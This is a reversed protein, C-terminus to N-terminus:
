SSLHCFVFVFFLSGHNLLSFAQWLSPFRSSESEGPLSKGGTSRLVVNELTKADIHSKVVTQPYKIHTNNHGCDFTYLKNPPLCDHSQSTKRRFHSCIKKKKICAFSYHPGPWHKAGCIPLLTQTATPLSQPIFPPIPLSWHCMSWNLNDRSGTCCQLVQQPAWPPM